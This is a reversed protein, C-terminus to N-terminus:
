KRAPPYKGLLKRADESLQKSLRPASAARLDQTGRWLLSNSANNIDIVLVGETYLVPAAPPAQIVVGPGGGGPGGGGMRTPGLREVARVDKHSVSYTVSIDPKDAIEKLRKKLLAARISAELRQRFLRNDIELKDSTIAGARISFTRLARFDTGPAFSIDSAASVPPAFAAVILVAALWRLMSNM